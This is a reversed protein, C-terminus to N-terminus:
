DNQTMRNHILGWRTLSLSTWRHSNRSLSSCHGQCCGDWNPEFLSKVMRVETDRKHNAGLLLRVRDICRHGDLNRQGLFWSSGVKISPWTEGCMAHDTSWVVAWMDSASHVTDSGLRSQEEDEYWCLCGWLHYIWGWRLWINHNVSVAWGGTYSLTCEQCPQYHSRQSGSDLIIQVELPSEPMNPNYALAWVTQLLM